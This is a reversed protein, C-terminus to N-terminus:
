VLKITNYVEHPNSTPDIVALLGAYLFHSDRHRRLRALGELVKAYTGNGQHDVRHRNHIHGPGDLSIGLSTHHTACVDLIQETILMGNTQISCPYEVPLAKRLATLLADLRAYGLILPEGGHLM